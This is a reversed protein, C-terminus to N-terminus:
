NRTKPLKIKRENAPIIGHLREKMQMIGHQKNKQIQFNKEKARQALSKGLKLHSEQLTENNVKQFAESTM